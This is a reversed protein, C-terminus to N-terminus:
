AKPVAYFRLISDIECNNKTTDCNSVTFSEKFSNFNLTNIPVSKIINGNQYVTVDANIQSALRGAIAICKTFDIRNFDQNLAIFENYPNITFNGANVELDGLEKPSIAQNNITIKCSDPLILQSVTSNIARTTTSGTQVVISSAWTTSSALLLLSLILKM